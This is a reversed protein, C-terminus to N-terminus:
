YGVDIKLLLAGNDGGKLVSLFARNRKISVQMDVPDSDEHTYTVEVRAETSNHSGLRLRVVRKSSIPLEVAAGDAIRYSEEQVLTFSDFPLKTLTAALGSLKPDIGAGGKTARIVQVRIEVKAPVDSPMVPAPRPAPAPEARASVPASLALALPLIWRLASLTRTM